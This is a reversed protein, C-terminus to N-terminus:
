SDIGIRTSEKNLYNYEDLVNWKDDEGRGIFM